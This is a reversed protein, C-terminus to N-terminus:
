ILKYFGCDFWLWLCVGFEVYYEFCCLVSYECGFSFFFFFTLSLVWNWVWVWGYATFRGLRHHNHGVVFEHTDGDTWAGASCADSIDGFLWCEFDFWDFVGLRILLWVWFDLYFDCDIEGTHLSTTWTATTTVSLLSKWLETPGLFWFLVSIYIGFFFIALNLFSGFFCIFVFDITFPWFDIWNGLEGMHLSTTWTDMTIVSWLSKRIETLGHERRAPTALTGAKCCHEWWVQTTTRGVVGTHLSNCIWM